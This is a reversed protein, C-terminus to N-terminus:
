LLGRVYTTGLFLHISRGGTSLTEGAAPGATLTGFHGPVKGSITKQAKIPTAPPIGSALQQQCITMACALADKQSDFLKGSIQCRWQPRDTLVQKVLM